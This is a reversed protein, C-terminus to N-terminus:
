SKKKAMVVVLVIVVLAVAIGGIIVGRNDRQLTNRQQNAMANSQAIQAQLQLATLNDQRAGKNFTNWLSPVTSGLFSNMTDAFANGDFKKEFNDVAKDDSLDMPVLETGTNANPNTLPEITTPDINFNTFM